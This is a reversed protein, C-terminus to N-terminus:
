PRFFLSQPYLFTILTSIYCVHFQYTVSEVSFYCCIVFSVLFPKTKASNSVSSLSALLAFALKNQDGPVIHGGRSLPRSELTVTVHNSILFCFTCALAQNERRDCIRGFIHIQHSIYIAGFNFSAFLHLLSGFISVQM